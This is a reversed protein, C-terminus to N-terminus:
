TVVAIVLCSKNTHQADCNLLYPRNSCWRATTKSTLNRAGSRVRTTGRQMSQAATYFTCTCTCTHVHVHVHAKRVDVHVHVSHAKFTTVYLQFFNYQWFLYIIHTTSMISYTTGTYM